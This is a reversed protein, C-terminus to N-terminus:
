FMSQRRRYIKIRDLGGVWAPVVSRPVAGLEERPLFRVSSLVIFHNLLIVHQKLIIFLAM